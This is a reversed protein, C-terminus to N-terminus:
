DGFYTDGTISIGKDQVKGTFEEEDLAFLPSIEVMAGRSVPIGAERAWSIHLNTLAARATKPSDVGSRNKVPAFEEGRLVEMCCAKRALPIADFVFTEFKWAPMTVERGDQDIGEVPKNACHYPLAFGHENLRKVFDLNLAHIATNGAWYLIAGKDDLASMREKGMETYEIIGDTGDMVVYVGVKEEINVRRVVKTSVDAGAMSHYGLFVPDAIKVLPNDVQCYFLDTFGEDMLNDLIGSDHLARLSGGHGDPNLCLHTNDRLILRGEPTVTPLMGQRFFQVRNQDLGFYNHAMFFDVTDRHNESSTMILLPLNSAYRLSIARVQEAFLQFLTKGKVPSVPFTGKPKDHGLRVGQGGAVIMVAVRNRLLLAEGAKRAEERRRKEVATRPVEIVRAPEIKGPSDSQTQQCASTKYLTFVLDYPLDKLQALLTKQKAEPLRQLHTLIHDQGHRELIRLLEHDTM